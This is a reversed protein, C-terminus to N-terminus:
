SKGEKLSKCRGSIYDSAEEVSEEYPNMQMGFIDIDEHKCYFYCVSKPNDTQQFWWGPANLNKSVFKHVESMPCGINNAPEWTDCEPILKKVFSFDIDFALRFVHEDYLVYEDNLKTFYKIEEAPYYEKIIKSRGALDIFFPEPWIDDKWEWVNHLIALIHGDTAICKGKEFKVFNIRYRSAELTAIKTALKLLMPKKIKIM